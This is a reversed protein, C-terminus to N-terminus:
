NWFRYHVVHKLEKIKDHLLNYSDGLPFMEVILSSEKLLNIDNLVFDSLVSMDYIEVNMGLQQLKKYIVFTPSHRIDDTNEKFSAGILCVQQLNNIELLDVLKDSFWGIHVDNSNIISQVLPLNLNQNKALSQIEQVDKPFCSGGWGPSPRFYDLGIRSDLGVGRLVDEQNANLVDVIRSAENVFSLRLPLYANSLYKILQSSVPDTYIIESNIKNYLEGVKKMNKTNLSGVVVRDTYFFDNFASGERLFEPNFVLDDYNISFDKFVKELALPHITSKICIVSNNNMLDEINNFVSSIYSIDVEGDETTPTQVCILVIDIGEWKVNDYSDYFKVNKKIDANSLYDEIEPEVFPTFGQNLTKIKEKDTDIFSIKHGVKALSLGTVLGVYGVGVIVLKMIQHYM